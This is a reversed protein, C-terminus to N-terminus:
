CEHGKILFFKYVLSQFLVGYIAMKSLAVDLPLKALLRGLPTLREASDIAGVDRLKSIARRINKATPPDIASSLVNEISGLNWIKIRLIPDQLSLRLMEPTAQEPMRTDHHHRTVLHFCLGARVRAARGRRQRASSRSILGETLKSLQRREDFRMVKEKCTDIVVTVDPITIGTEAINTAIVIKQFGPPPPLFAQELEQTSFSSHLMHIIWSSSFTPSCVIMSHLRRIEAIGPMFILMAKSYQRYKPKTAIATALKLILQYDIRMYDYHNLIRQTSVSYKKLSSQIQSKTEVEDSDSVGLRDEEDQPGEVACNIDLTEEIADELFGIEVPFTRGPINLVPCNDFYNSFKSADVTASMLVIKLSPRRARLQKLAIFLLDLEMTREHVEDLILCDLPDLNPSDQLMRLLVGTTAFTIRTSPSTKTELRITYGVLSRPTGLDNKGEGLEASVRGAISVASIRRPQTVLIQLDRGQRLGNELIYSPIQTSKGAGTDACILLIQNEEFSDLIDQKYAFVPLDRRAVQMKEFATSKARRLWMETAEAAHLRTPAKKKRAPLESDSVLIEGDHVSQTSVVIGNSSKAQILSRLGKLKVVDEKSQAGELSKKLDACLDRWVKPLRLLSKTTTLDAADLLFITLTALFAEADSSNITAIARMELAWSKSKQVFHVGYPLCSAVLENVVTKSQWYIALKMRASFSTVQLPTYKVGQRAMNGSCIEEMLRRPHIGTWTGFDKVIVTISAEAAPETSNSEDNGFMSGLIADDEYHLEIGANVPVAQAEQIAKKKHKNARAREIDLDRHILQWKQQAQYADFLVDREIAQLRQDNKRKRSDYASANKHEELTFNLTQLRVWREVLSDPDDDDDSDSM